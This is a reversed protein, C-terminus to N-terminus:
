RPLSIPRVLARALSVRGNGERRSKGPNVVDTRGAAAAVVGSVIYITNAEAEPLGEITSETFSIVPVLIGSIEIYREITQKSFVKARGESRIEVQDVGDSLVIAHGTLNVIKPHDIPHSNTTVLEAM